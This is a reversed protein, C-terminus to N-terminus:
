VPVTSLTTPSSLCVIFAELVIENICVFLLEMLPSQKGKAWSTDLWLRRSLFGLVHM